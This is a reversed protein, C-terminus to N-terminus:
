LLEHCVRGDGWKIKKAARSLRDGKWVEEMQPVDRCSGPDGRRGGIETSEQFPFLFVGHLGEEGGM